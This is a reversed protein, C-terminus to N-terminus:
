GVLAADSFYELTADARRRPVATMVTACSVLASGAASAGTFTQGIILGVNHQENV